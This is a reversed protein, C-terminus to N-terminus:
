LADRHVRDRKKSLAKVQAALMARTEEHRGVASLEELREPTESLVRQVAEHQLYKKTHAYAMRGLGALHRALEVCRDELHDPGVIEDVFGLQLATEVPHLRAELMAYRVQRNTMALRVIEFAGIPYGLGIAVENLGFRHQGNCTIRFDCALAIVAGGAIAHGNVMAVTPKAMTWLEFLGDGEGGGLNRLRSQGSVAEKLDFGASFFPGAGTVIVAKVKNDDARAARCQDRLADNLDASIANAPPRNLTLIRVGGVIDRSEVIM